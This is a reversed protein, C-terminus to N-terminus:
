RSPFYVKEFAALFDVLTHFFSNILNNILITLRRYVSNEIANSLSCAFFIMHLILLNRLHMYNGHSTDELLCLPAPACLTMTNKM